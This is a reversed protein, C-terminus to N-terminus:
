LLGIENDSLKRATRNVLLLVSCNIVSNFLGIATAYSFNGGAQLGVKYVYTSIIESTGLNLTTQMLLVKEFGITMISGFRLILMIAATPLIAPFDIHVLRQWRSAGDIEAAEYLEPSVSSLAAIYIITGWGLNQWVDSWVYFHRFTGAVGMLIDPYGANFLKFFYGYAGAVPSFFTIMMGVLVVTSIFHPIYTLTQVIKKFSPNRMTNLILAFFIPLPFGALILYLSLILTNKMVRPFQYSSFFTKFHRLGVWPSGWIGQAPSFNKFAIQVGFMPYYAFILLYLLPLLMFVHLRWDRKFHRIFLGGRSLGPGNYGTKL